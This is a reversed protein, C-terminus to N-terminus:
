MALPRHGPPCDECSRKKGPVGSSSKAFGYRTSQYREGGHWYHYTVEIRYTRSGKSGRQSILESRDIECSAPIWRRAARSELWPHLTMGWLAAVGGFGFVSCFLTMLIRAPWTLRADKVPATPQIPEHPNPVLSLM